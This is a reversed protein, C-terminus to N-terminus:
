ERVLSRLPVNLVREALVCDSCLGIPGKAGPILDAPLQEWQSLTGTASDYQFAVTQAYPTLAGTDQTLVGRETLVPEIPEEIDPFYVDASLTANDYLLRVASSAEWSASLPTRQWNFYGARDRFGPLVFLVMTDDKFDPAVVFLEHWLTQQERWAVRNHYQVSAQTVIGLVV